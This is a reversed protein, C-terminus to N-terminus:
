VSMFDHCTEHRQIPKDLWGGASIMPSKPKMQSFPPKQHEQHPVFAALFASALTDQLSLSGKVERTCKGTGLALPREARPNCVSHM